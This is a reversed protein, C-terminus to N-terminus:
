AASLSQLFEATNPDERIRQLLRGGFVRTVQSACAGSAVAIARKLQMYRTTVCHTEPKALNWKPTHQTTLVLELAEYFCGQSVGVVCERSVRMGSAFGCNGWVAVM